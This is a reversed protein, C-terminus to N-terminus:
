QPLGDAWRQRVNGLKGVQVGCVLPPPAREVSLNNEIGRKLLLNQSADPSLSAPLHSSQSKQWM